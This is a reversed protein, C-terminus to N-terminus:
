ALEEELIRDEDPVRSFYHVVKERLESRAAVSLELVKAPTESNGRSFVSCSVKQVNRFDVMYHRLTYIKKERGYTLNYSPLHESPPYVFAELFYYSPEADQKESTPLSDWKEPPYYKEPPILRNILTFDDVFHPNQLWYRQIHQLPCIGVMSNEISCCPTLVACFSPTAVAIGFGSELTVPPKNVSPVVFPFGRLIDGFRYGASPNSAYYMM